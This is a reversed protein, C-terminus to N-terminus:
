VPANSEVEESPILLTNVQPFYREHLYLSDVKGNITLYGADTLEKNLQEIIKYAYSISIEFIEAVDKARLMKRHTLFM